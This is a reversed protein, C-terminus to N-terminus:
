FRVRVRLAPHAPVPQSGYVIMAGGAGTLGLGLSLLPYNTKCDAIPLTTEDPDTNCPALDLNLRTNINEESLDSRQEWTMSAISVVIGVAALGIGIWVFTPSKIPQEEYHGSPDHALRAAQRELSAAIPGQATLSLVLVASLPIM